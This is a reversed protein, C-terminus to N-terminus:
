VCRADRTISLEQKSAFFSIPFLLFLLALMPWVDDRAVWRVEADRPILSDRALLPPIAVRRRLSGPPDRPGADRRLERRLLFKLLLASFSASLQITCGAPYGAKSDPTCSAKGSTAKFSRQSPRQM